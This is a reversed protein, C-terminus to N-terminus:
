YVWRYFGPEDPKDRASPVAARLLKKFAHKAARADPYDVGVAEVGGAGAVGAGAGKDTVVYLAARSRGAAPAEGSM